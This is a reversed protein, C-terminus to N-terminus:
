MQSWGAMWMCSNKKKECVVTVIFERLLLSSMKQTVGKTAEWEGSPKAHGLHGSPIDGEGFEERTGRAEDDISWCRGLCAMISRDEMVHSM